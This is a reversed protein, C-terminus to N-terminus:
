CGRSLFCLGVSITSTIDWKATERGPYDIYETLATIDGYAEQIGKGSLNTDENTEPVIENHQKYGSQM